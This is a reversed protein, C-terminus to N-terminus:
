NKLAFSDNEEKKKGNGEGAKGAPREHGEFSYNRATRTPFKYNYRRATIPNRGKKEGEIKEEERDM